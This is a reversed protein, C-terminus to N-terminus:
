NDKSNKSFFYLFLPPLFLVFIIRFRLYLFLGLAVAFILAWQNSKNMTSFYYFDGKTQLM